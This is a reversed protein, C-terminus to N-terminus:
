AATATVATAARRAAATARGAPLPDCAAYPARSAAAARRALTIHAPLGSFRTACLAPAGTAAATPPKPPVAPNWSTTPLPAGLTARISTPPWTAPATPDSALAGAAPRRTTCTTNAAGAAVLSARAALTANAAARTSVGGGSRRRCM